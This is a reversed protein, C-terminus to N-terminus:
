RCEPDSGVLEGDLVLDVGLLTNPLGLEDMVAQVTTGSGMVYYVGDEMTEAIDAAIDDLVLAEVERGASKTRQVFRGEEPVLLEGYYCARVQGQRFAQKTLIM